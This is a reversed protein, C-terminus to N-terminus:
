YFKIGLIADNKSEKRKNQHLHHSDFGSTMWIVSPLQENSRDPFEVDQEVIIYYRIKGKM